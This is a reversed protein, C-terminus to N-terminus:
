WLSPELGLLLWASWRGIDRQREIEPAYGVTLNVYADNERISTDLAFGYEKHMERHEDEFAVFDALISVDLFGANYSPGARLAGYNEVRFEGWAAGALPVVYPNSGGLRTYTLDDQNKAIGGRAEARVALTSEPRYIAEGRIRPAREDGQIDAGARIEARATKSWWGVFLDPSVVLTPDPVDITTEDPLKSFRYARSEAAAGLYFGAPLYTVVGADAGLYSAILARFREPQGDRWPNILMQAAFGALRAGAWARGGEYHHQYHVDLTDTLLELSWPGKYMGLNLIGHSRHQFDGGVSASWYVPDDDQALAPVSLLMLSAFLLLSLRYPMPAKEQRPHHEFTRQRRVRGCHLASFSDPHFVLKCKIPHAVGKKFLHRLHVKDLPRLNGAKQFTLSPMHVLKEETPSGHAVNHISNRRDHPRRQM